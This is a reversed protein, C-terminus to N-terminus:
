SSAASPGRLTAWAEVVQARSTVRLMAAYVAVFAAAGMVLGLLGGGVVALIVSGAVIATAGSAYITLLRPWSGDVLGVAGRRHLFLSAAGVIVAAAGAGPLGALIVLVPAAVLAVASVVIALRLTTDTRGSSWMLSRLMRAPVTGFAAVAMLQLPLIAGIWKDGFVLPVLTPAVAALGGEVAVIAITTAELVKGAARSRRPPDDNLRSMVPFGVRGLVEDIAAALVTIRFAFQLNGIGALGGALTGALPVANEAFWNVISSLQLPVGFRLLRRLTASDWAVGQWSRCALNLVITNTAAQVVLAAVFSWAGAGLLAAVIAVVYFAVQMVVDAIAIPAFRLARILLLQPIMRLGTFILALSGVRLLWVADARLDPAVVFILPSAIWIVVTGTTLILQQATWATALEHRAPEDRQRVLDAALGLDGVQTTITVVAVVIAYMGFDAPTLIRALVIAGVLSLVRLAATRALMQFVAARGLQGLGLNTAAAVDAADQMPDIM